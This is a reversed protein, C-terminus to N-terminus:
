KRKVVSEEIWKIYDPLGDTIDFSIAEPLEYPHLERLRAMLKQSAEGTTKILLIIESDKEVEGKWRYYSTVGPIINVCAALKERVLTNSIEDARSRDGVTSIILKNM